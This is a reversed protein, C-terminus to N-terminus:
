SVSGTADLLARTAAKVDEAGLIATIVAVGFAGARRVDRARDITVGGIGIIPVRVARCVATLTSLGLPPGFSQKSPTSYVPGLV